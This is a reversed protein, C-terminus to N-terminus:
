RGGPSTAPKWFTAFSRPYRHADEVADGMNMRHRRVSGPRTRNHRLRAPLRRDISQDLSTECQEAEPALRGCHMHCHEIAARGLDRDDGVLTRGACKWADGAMMRGRKPQFPGDMIQEPKNCNGGVIQPRIQSWPEIVIDPALGIREGAAVCRAVRPWVLEKRGLALPQVLNRDTRDMGPDDLGAMEAEGGIALM